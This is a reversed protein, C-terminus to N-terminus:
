TNRITIRDTAKFTKDQLYLSFIKLTSVSYLYNICIDEYKLFSLYVYYLLYLGQNDIKEWSKMNIKKLYVTM